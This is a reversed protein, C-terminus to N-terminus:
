RVSETLERRDISIPISLPNNHPQIFFPTIRGPLRHRSTSPLEGLRASLGRRVQPHLPHEAPDDTESLSSREAAKRQACVSSSDSGLSIESGNASFSGRHRAQSAARLSIGIDSRKIESVIERVSGSEVLKITCEIYAQGSTRLRNLTNLRDRAFRTWKCECIIQMSYLFPASRPLSFLHGAALQLSSNLRITFQMEDIEDNASFGSVFSVPSQIIFSTFHWCTFYLSCVGGTMQEPFPRTRIKRGLFIRELSICNYERTNLGLSLPIKM